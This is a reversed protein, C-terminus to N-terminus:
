LGAFRLGVALAACVALTTMVGRHWAFMMVCAFVSLGLAPLSLTAWLPVHLKFPGSAVVDVKGFLVALAFWVTLNLIVGVVAATIAALASKM